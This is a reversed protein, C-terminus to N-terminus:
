LWVYIYVYMSFWCECGICHSINMNEQIYKGDFSASLFALLDCLCMCHVDCWMVYCWMVDGFCMSHVDCFMVYYWLVDCFMVSCWLVDGFCMRHVDCFLVYCVICHVDCFLVYCVVWHVDCLIVSCWLFVYLSCWWECGIFNTNGTIQERRRWRGTHVHYVYVCVNFIVVWLRHLTHSVNMNGQIHKCDYIYMCVIFVVEWKM